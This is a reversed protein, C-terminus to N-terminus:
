MDRDRMQAGREDEGGRGERRGMGGEGDVEVQLGWQMNNVVVETNPCISGNCQLEM